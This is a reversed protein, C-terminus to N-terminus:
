KRIMYIYKGTIPNVTDPLLPTDSFSTGPTVADSDQIQTELRTYVAYGGELKRYVYTRTKNSASDDSAQSLEKYDATSSDPDSGGGKGQYKGDIPAPNLYESLGPIWAPFPNYDAPDYLTKTASDLKPRSPDNCPKKIDTTGDVSLPYYYYVYTPTPTSATDITQCNLYVNNYADYYSATSGGPLPDIITNIKGPFKKNVSYYTEVATAISQVQIRRANDRARRQITAYNVTAVSVLLGIIVLTILLEIITFGKKM